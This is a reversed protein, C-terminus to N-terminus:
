QAILEDILERNEDTRLERLIQKAKEGGISHITSIAEARLCLNESYLALEYIRPLFDSLKKKNIIALAYYIDKLRNSELLM